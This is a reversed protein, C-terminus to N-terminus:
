LHVPQVLREPATAAPVTGEQDSTGARVHVRARVTRGAAGGGLVGPHGVVCTGVLVGDDTIGAVPRARDAVGRGRHPILSGHRRLHPPTFSRPAIRDVFQASVDTRRTVPYTMWREDLDVVHELTHEATAPNRAIKRLVGSAVGSRALGDLVEADDSFEAARLVLPVTRLDGPLRPDAYEALDIMATGETLRWRNRVGLFHASTGGGLVGASTPIRPHPSGAEGHRGVPRPEYGHSRCPAGNRRRARGDGVDDSRLAGRRQRAPIRLAAPTVTPLTRRPRSQRPGQRCRNATVPCSPSCCSSRP